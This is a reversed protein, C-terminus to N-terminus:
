KLRKVKVSEYEYKRETKVKNDKLRCTKAEADALSSLVAFCSSGGSIQNIQFKSKLSSIVNRKATFCIFNSRPYRTNM